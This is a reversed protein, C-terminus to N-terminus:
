FSNYSSSLVQSYILLDQLFLLINKYKLLPFRGTLVNNNNAQM